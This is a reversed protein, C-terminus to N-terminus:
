LKSFGSWFKLDASYSIVEHGELHERPDSSIILSKTKDCLLICLYTVGPYNEHKYKCGVEITDPNVLSSEQPSKNDLELVQNLIGQAKNLLQAIEQLQNQHKRKM